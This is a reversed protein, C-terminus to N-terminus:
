TCIGVSKPYFSVILSAAIAGNTLNTIEISYSDSEITVFEDLVGGAGGGARPGSGSAVIYELIVTGAAITANSIANFPPAPGNRNANFITEAVGDTLGPGEKLEVHCAGGVSPTFRFHAFTDAPINASLSMTAGAGLALDVLDVVFFNGEHIEHHEYGLVKLATVLCDILSELVFDHVPVRSRQEVQDWQRERPM